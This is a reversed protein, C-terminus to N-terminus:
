QHFEDFIHGLGSEPIGIGTDTVSVEMETPLRHAAITVHGGYPTFKIANSLLNVLIQRLKGPDAVLAGVNDVGMSVTLRKAETLPQLIATVEDVLNRLDTTELFLDM